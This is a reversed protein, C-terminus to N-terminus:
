LWLRWWPQVRCAAAPVRGYGAILVVPDAGAIWEWGVVEGKIRARWPLTPERGRLRPRPNPGDGDLRVRVRKGVLESPHRARRRVSPRRPRHEELFVLTM